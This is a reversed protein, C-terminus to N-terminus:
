PSPESVKPTWGNSTFLLCSGFGLAVLELVFRLDIRILGMPELVIYLGEAVVFYALVFGGIRQWSREGRDFFIAWFIGLLIIAMAGVGVNGWADLWGFLWLFFIIAIVALSSKALSTGLDILLKTGRHEM